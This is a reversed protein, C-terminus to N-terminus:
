PWSRSRPIARDARKKIRATILATTRCSMARSSRAATTASGTEISNVKAAM